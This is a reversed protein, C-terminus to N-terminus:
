LPALPNKDNLPYDVLCIDNPIGWISATARQFRVNAVPRRVPKRRPKGLILQTGPNAPFDEESTHTVVRDEDYPVQACDLVKRIVQVAEAKSIAYIQLNLGNNLDKYTVLVRGKTWVYRGGTAFESRIRQAHSRLEAETITQSTENRIRYSIVAEVPRRGEPVADLDQRFYLKVMPRFRVNAQYTDIPIGYIPAQVDRARRVTFYFLMMRVLCQLASDDDTIRCAVRLSSRPVTLDDDDGLDSFEQRVEQNYARILTSQLHEWASFNEPLAM